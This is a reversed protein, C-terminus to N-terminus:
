VWLRVFLALRLARLLAAHPPGLGRLRDREARTLSGEVYELHARRRDLDFTSEQADALPAGVPM